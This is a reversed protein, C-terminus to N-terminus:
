KKMDTQIRQMNFANSVVGGEQVFSTDILFALCVMRYITRSKGNAKIQYKRLKQNIKYDVLM